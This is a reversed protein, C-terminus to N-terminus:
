CLNRIIARQFPEAATASAELYGLAGKDTSYDPAVGSALYLLDGGTGFTYQNQHVRKVAQQM